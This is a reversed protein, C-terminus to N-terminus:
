VERVTDLRCRPSGEIAHHLDLGISWVQVSALDIYVHCIATAEETIWRIHVHIDQLTTSSSWYPNLLTRTYIYINEHHTPLTYGGRNVVCVLVGEEECTVLGVLELESM